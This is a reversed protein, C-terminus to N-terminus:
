IEDSAFRLAGELTMVQGKKTASAFEAEDLKSQIIERNREVEVRDAPWWAAGTAQLLSEAAGLLVAGKQAHGQIANLGALGALCEAIGRKNGLRRFMALSERFQTEARVYDKEHQAIYGLTHILRALDGKDGSDQLLKESAQYYERAEDYLGQTRAVEGLNNMAFALLWAEGFECAIGYAKELWGRAEEPNGLGLAVNGLHVLTIAYFYSFDLEKFLAQAQKLLPHAAEDQGMNILVVGNGMMTNAMWEENELSQNIALGERFRSLATHHESQWMALLGASALALARPPAPSEAGLSDLVRESWMRGENFYGRRYWFWNLAMVLGAGFEPHEPHTESWTLTARINDNERELWNLWYLADSSFLQHAAQNLIVGGFYQAHRQQLESLQGSEALRELAYEQITALMRFRPEGEPTEEQRLLSNNALSTLGELIDLNNQSNCVAEAAELTFGGAFVGLQAYLSKEDPNLLNYSWELTNRITQHRAPLDRAGGTLLKLQDSLRALIADPSLLKVRAAALEIALPLGDLRQCVEAVTAANSSNLSFSPLAAQAREVFLRVSEIRDLEELDSDKMTDPINMPPVPYEHEGRLNLLVRSTVLIKLAPAAALLDAVLPAASVLQEFNDLLLLLKKDRLYEKVNEFLSQSGAERVELQGAIRSVLQDPTSDDALSVFYVGQPFRALVDRAVQLSLRTKGTGGPGTLTLLRVEQRLLLEKVATLHAVRGIFTTPMAPLNHPVRSAPSGTGIQRQPTRDFESENYLQRAEGGLPLPFTAAYRKLNAAAYIMGALRYEEPQGAKHCYSLGAAVGALWYQGWLDDYLTPHESRVWEDFALRGTRIVASVGAMEIPALRPELIDQEALSAILDVVSAFSGQSIAQVLYSMELYRHDYLLPMGEKFLAFDILYYGELEEGGRSFKVLINNTNLDSHQLGVIADGPRIRGWHDPNRAYRLPNPFVKGRILFGASEPDVQCFERLFQEINGGPDLRFGLWKKLLTQPHVAQEFALDQNWEALVYRHTALFITELQSQRSYRSLPRYDHLSQGAIAYFIAIADESEVRDFLLDPIHQRAFDPPSKSRALNHRDIEDTKSKKKKRDLKLVFHEVRGSDQSAVSVLYIVAGSWGGVLEQLPTVVIDHQDQALRIVHQYETPLSNFGSALDPM